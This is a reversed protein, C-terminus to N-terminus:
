TRQPLNPRQNPRHRRRLNPRHLYERLKNIHTAIVGKARTTKSSLKDIREAIRMQSHFGPVIVSINILNRINVRPSTAGVTDGIVRAYILDSNLLWMLFRPCVNAAARFLMVRQALCTRANEPIQAAMGFREGERSFIVDGASPELRKIRERYVEERVRLAHELDLSGRAVDATRLAPFEGDVDYDPTSHPCDVIASALFKIRATQCDAGTSGILVQQTVFALQREELLEILREKKAILDDIRATERDLFDAIASQEAEPPAPIKISGITETNLNLQTGLKGLGKYAEGAEFIYWLFRANITLFPFYVFGDHICCAVQAICPKGVTAAISLFLAGPQLKVSLSAGLESLRQDTEFLYGSKSATVDSIRVWRYEGDNDFYKPDDIPRPSAGRRVLSDRKIMKVTWHSPIRGIWQVNSEKYHLHASSTRPSALTM